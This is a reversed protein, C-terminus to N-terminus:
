FGVISVKCEGLALSRRVGCKNRLCVAAIATSRIDDMTRVLRKPAEHM